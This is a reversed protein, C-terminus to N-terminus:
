GEGPVQCGGAGYFSVVLNRQSKFAEGLNNYAAAHTPNLELARRFCIIADDTKGQDELIAGLNYHAVSYDPRLKLARRSCNEAEDLKGQAKLIAALNSHLRADTGNLVIASRIYEVALDIRGHQTAILGLLHLANAYNQDAALVRRCAHEAAALQGANYNQWAVAMESNIEM